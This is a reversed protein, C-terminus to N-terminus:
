FRFSIESGAGFDVAGATGNLLPKTAKTWVSWQAGPAPFVYLTPVIWVSEDRGATLSANHFELPVGVSFTNDIAYAPEVYFYLDDLFAGTVTQRVSNPAPVDGKDNYFFSASLTYRDYVYTPEVLVVTGADYDNNWYNMGFHTNIRFAEDFRGEFTLALEFPYANAVGATYRASPTWTMLRNVPSRWAAYTSWLRAAGATDQAVGTQVELGGNRFGAGRVQQESVAAATRKNRYYSFYGTGSTLDGVMLTTANTTRWHFAVGDFNLDDWTNGAGQSPVAGDNLTTYIFASLRPTFTLTTTLDAELGTAHTPDSFDSGFDSAFDADVYGTFGVKRRPAQAWVEGALLCVLGIVVAKKM